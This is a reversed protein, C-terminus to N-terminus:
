ECWCQRVCEGYPEHNGNSAGPSVASKKKMVAGGSYPQEAHKYMIGDSSIGGGMEMRSKCSIRVLAGTSWVHEQSM